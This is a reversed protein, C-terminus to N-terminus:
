QEKKVKKYWAWNLDVEGLLSKVLEVCRGIALRSLRSTVAMAAFVAYGSEEVHEIKLEELAKELLLSRFSVGRPLQVYPPLPTDMALSGSLINLVSLTLHAQSQFFEPGLSQSLAQM